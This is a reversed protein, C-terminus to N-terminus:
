TGKPSNVEIHMKGNMIWRGSENSTAKCKSIVDILPRVIEDASEMM